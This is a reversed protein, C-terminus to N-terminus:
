KASFFFTIHELYISKKEGSRLFFHRNAGENAFVAADLLNLACLAVCMKHQPPRDDKDADYAGRLGDDKRAFSGCWILSAM